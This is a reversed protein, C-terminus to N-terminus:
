GAGAGATRRRSLFHKCCEPSAADVMAKRLIFAVARALDLDSTAAEAVPPHEEDGVVAHPVKGDLRDAAERFAATEEGARELLKRQWHRFAGGDHHASGIVNRWADPV